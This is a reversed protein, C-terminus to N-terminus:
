RQKAAGVVDVGESVYVWQYAQNGHVDWLVCLRMSVMANTQEYM